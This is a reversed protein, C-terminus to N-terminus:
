NFRMLSSHVFKNKISLTEHNISFLFKGNKKFIKLFKNVEETKMEPFSNQNFLIDFKYNKIIDVM